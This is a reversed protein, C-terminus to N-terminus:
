ATAPQPAAGAEETLSTTEFLQQYDAVDTKITLGLMERQKNIAQLAIEFLQPSSAVFYSLSKQFADEQSLAFDITSGQQKAILTLLTKTATIIRNNLEPHYVKGASYIAIARAHQAIAKELVSAEKSLYMDGLRHLIACSTEPPCTQSMKLLTDKIFDSLRQRTPSLPTSAEYLSEVYSMAESVDNLQTYGKALLLYRTHPDDVKQLLTHLTDQTIEPYLSLIKQLTEQFDLFQKEPLRSIEEAIFAICFYVREGSKQKLYFNLLPILGNSIREEKPLSHLSKEFLPINEPRMHYLSLSLFHCLKDHWDQFRPDTLMALALQHHYETFLRDENLPPTTLLKDKILSFAETPHDHYKAKFQFLLNLAEDLKPASAQTYVIDAFYGFSDWQYNKGEGKHIGSVKEELLDNVLATFETRM